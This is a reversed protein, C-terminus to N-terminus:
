KRCKHKRGVDKQLDEDKFLLWSKYIYEYYSDIMGSIHSSKDIWEGTEVDITTGVLGIKSKRKDLELFAKKAKQYFIDNGTLKSLTGFEIMLTGIEAPNSIKNKVEGTKLNIEKYPMGTPSDFAKLLRRGLDEALELLKPDKDMTYSSLLGGLIRIVVEFKQVFM